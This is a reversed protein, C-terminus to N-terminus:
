HMTIKHELNELLIYLISLWYFNAGLHLRLLWAKSVILTVLKNFTSHRFPTPPLYTMLGFNDMSTSPHLDSHNKHVLVILILSKLSGTYLVHLVQLAVM